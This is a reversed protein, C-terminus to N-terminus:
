LWVCLSTPGFQITVEIKNIWLLHTQGLNVKARVRGYEQPGLSCISTRVVSISLIWTTWPWHLLWEGVCECGGSQLAGYCLWLQAVHWGTSTVPHTCPPLLLTALTTWGAHILPSHPIYFLVRPKFFSRQTYNTEQDKYMICWSKSRKKLWTLAM